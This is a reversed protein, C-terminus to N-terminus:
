TFVKRNNKKLAELILPWDLEKLVGFLRYRHDDSHYWNKVMDEYSSPPDFLHIEDYEYFLAAFLCTICSFGSGALSIPKGPFYENLMGTNQLIDFTEMGQLPRGLWISHHIYFSRNTDDDYNNRVSFSKAHGAGRVNGLYVAGSQLLNMIRSEQKEYDMSGDEFIALYIKDKENKEIYAGPLAIGDESFFFSKRSRVGNENTSFNHIRLDYDRNKEPMKLVRAARQRLEDLDHIPKYRIKELQINNIEHMSVENEIEGILTDNNPKTCKLSEFDLIEIEGTQFDSEVGMLHKKFFRVAKERLFPSYAHTSPAEFLELNDEAGYLAYIKKANKYVERAGEIPFFDYLVAGVAAPKPAFYEFFCEKDFGAPYAGHILQECDTGSGSKFFEEYSTIYTCPIAAAIRSEAIMALASQTGGGSNGTIGIKKSDVFQLTELYDVARIIDWIFYGALCHGMLEIPFGIHNHEAITRDRPPYQIREGQSIPDISLVVFGNNAFDIAAKQYETEAKSNTAAHGMVFLICPRREEEELDNPVYLNCTVHFNPMSEYMIKEIMYGDGAIAGTKVPNLPTKELENFIGISDCFLQFIDKKFEELEKVTKINARKEKGKELDARIKNGFYEHLQVSFNYWSYLGFRDDM